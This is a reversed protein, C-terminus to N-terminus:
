AKGRRADSIKKAASTNGSTNALYYGFFSDYDIMNLKLLKKNLLKSFVERLEKVWSEMRRDSADNSKASSKDSLNIKPVGCRSTLCNVVVHVPSGIAASLWFLRVLPSGSPCAPSVHGAPASSSYM